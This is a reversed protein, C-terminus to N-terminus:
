AGQFCWSRVFSNVWLSAQGFPEL